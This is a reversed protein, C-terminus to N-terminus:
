SQNMPLGTGEDETACGNKEETRENLKEQLDTGTQKGKIGSANQTKTHLSNNQYSSDCRTM